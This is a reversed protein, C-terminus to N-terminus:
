QKENGTEVYWIELRICDDNASYIFRSTLIRSEHVELEDGPEVITTKVTMTKNPEFDILSQQGHFANGVAAVIFVDCTAAAGLWWPNFEFMGHAAYYM